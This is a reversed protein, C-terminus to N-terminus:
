TILFFLYQKNSRSAKCIQIYICFYHQGLRTNATRDVIRVTRGLIKLIKAEFKQFVANYTDPSFLSDRQLYNMVGFYHSFDITMSYDNKKGISQKYHQICVAYIAMIQPIINNFLGNHFTEFEFYQRSTPEDYDQAGRFM